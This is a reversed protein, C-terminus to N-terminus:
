PRHSCSRCRQLLGDAGAAVTAEPAGPSGFVVRRGSAATSRWSGCGGTLRTRPQTPFRTASTPHHQTRRRWRGLAAARRWDRSAPDALSGSARSRHPSRWQRVRRGARRRFNGPSASGARGPAPAGSCGIRLSNRPSSVEPRREWSTTANRSRSGHADELGALVGTMWADGQRGGGGLVLIDPRRIVTACRVATHSLM